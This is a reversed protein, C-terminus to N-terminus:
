IQLSSCKTTSIEIFVFIHRNQITKQLQFLLYKKGIVKGYIVVSEVVFFPQSHVNRSRRFLAPLGLPFLRFKNMEHHNHKVKKHTYAIIIVYLQPFLSMQRKAALVFPSGRLLSIYFDSSVPTTKAGKNRHKGIHKTM